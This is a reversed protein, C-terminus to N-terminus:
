NGRKPYNCESCPKLQYDKEKIRFFIPIDENGKNFTLLSRQEQNDLRLFVRAPYPNDAKPAQNIQSTTIGTLTILKKEKELKRLKLEQLGNIAKQL